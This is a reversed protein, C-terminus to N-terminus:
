KKSLIWYKDHIYFAPSKHVLAPSLAFFRLDGALLPLDLQCWQYQKNQKKTRKGKAKLEICYGTTEDGSLNCKFDKLSEKSDKARCNIHLELFYEYWGWASCKQKLGGM